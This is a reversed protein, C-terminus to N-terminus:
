KVPSIVNPAIASIKIPRQALRTNRIYLANRRNVFQWKTKREPELLLQCLERLVVFLYAAALFLVIAIVMGIGFIM